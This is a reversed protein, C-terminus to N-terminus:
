RYCVQLEMSEAVRGQKRPTRKDPVFDDEDNEASKSVTCKSSTGIQRTRQLDSEATSKRKAMRTNVRRTRPQGLLSSQKHQRSAGRKSTSRKDAGDNDTEMEACSLNTNEKDKQQSLSVINTQDDIAKNEKQESYMEANETTQDDPSIPPTEDDDSDAKANSHDSIPQNVIKSLKAAPGGLCGPTDFLLPSEARESDLPRLDPTNSATKSVIERSTHTAPNAMKSSLLLENSDSKVDNTGNLNTGQTNPPSEEICVILSTEKQQIEMALEAQASITSEDHPNSKKPMPDGPYHFTNHLQSLRISPQGTTGDNTQMSPGSSPQQSQSTKQSQMVISPNHGTALSHPSTPDNTIAYNVTSDSNAPMLSSFPICEEHCSGTLTVNRSLLLNEQASKCLAVPTSTHPTSGVPGSFSPSGPMPTAKSHDYNEFAVPTKAPELLATSTNRMQLGPSSM